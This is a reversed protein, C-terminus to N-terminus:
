PRKKTNAKRQEARKEDAEQQANEEQVSVVRGNRADVQVETITGRRNRIDFSYVLLGHERELEGDEVTGPARKLAIRRASVLTIKAHRARGAQSQERSRRSEGRLSTTGAYAGISLAAILLASSLIKLRMQNEKDEVRFLLM